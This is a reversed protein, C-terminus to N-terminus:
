PCLRQPPAKSPLECLQLHKDSNASSCGDEALSLSFSRHLSMPQANSMASFWDVWCAFYTHIYICVYIYICIQTTTYSQTFCHLRTCYLMTCPAAARGCSPPWVWKNGMREALAPLWDYAASLRYRIQWVPLVLSDHRLESEGGGGGGGM